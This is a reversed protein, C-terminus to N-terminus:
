LLTGLKAHLVLLSLHLVYQVIRLMVLNVLVQHYTIDPHAFPVNLPLLASLVVLLALKVNLKLCIFDSEVLPV